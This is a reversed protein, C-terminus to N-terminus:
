YGSVWDPLIVGNRRAYDEWEGVLERLLGPHERALDDSESLDYRLDFLQWQGTGYPEPMHTAKWPGRRVARKGLLEGGLVRPPPRVPAVADQAFLALQSVGTMAEVARGQYEPGQPQVGAIALLTAALDKVTMMADTVRGGAFREPAHLFAATRTGGETPFAKYLHFAPAGAWAWRAGYLVYSGPRGMAEYSFDHTADITRRIEPFAEAPWTEDLDHGEAGNDSLFVIVTDKWDPRSRLYDLLRGSHRDMEEVMAAYIEMARAERRQADPALADWAMYKPPPDALAARAPLVGLEVARALRRRMIVDYGEDYRGRTRALADDPAQLPWHPATFSLFAFYPKGESSQSELSEILFDVYYQSSYRFDAPLRELRRDNHRYDAKVSPDPAYAPRMDPFHSAGGSQLTFAQDFGRATPTSGPTSGLHWKGSIVTYYGAQQLLESITVVRPNLHGEYGPQGKQNPSLEELMNGFGAKHHDVGTLLMARTPSCMSAAQFNTLRIGDFALRDLHPTRIEGGFSGLDNYGMDDAVILLVNPRGQAESRDSPDPAVNACGAALAAVLMVTLTLAPTVRRGM